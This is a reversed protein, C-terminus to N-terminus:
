KGILFQLRKVDELSYEAEFRSLACGSGTDTHKLCDAYEEKLYAKNQISNLTIFQIAAKPLNRNWYAPNVKMIRPFISDQEGMGPSVGVRSLNGGFFAPKKLDGASFEAYESDLFQKTYAAAVQDEEKASFERASNFAEEVTVPIWYDPRNPDYIVICENNYIDIGPQVTRKNLPVTFYCKDRDFVDSSFGSGLTNVMNIYVSWEPPEITNYVVKGTKGYFFSSFEFSIRAPVGYGCDQKCLANYIRARGNFGKIDTLVPNKRVVNVLNIIRQLNAAVETKPFGCDPSTYDTRSLIEFTGPRDTLSGANQSISLLSSFCILVCLYLTKNM